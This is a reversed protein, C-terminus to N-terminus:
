LNQLADTSQERIQPGFAAGIQLEESYATKREGRFFLIQGQINRYFAMQMTMSMNPRTM